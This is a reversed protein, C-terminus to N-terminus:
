SVTYYYWLHNDSGRVYIEDPSLVAPASAITVGGDMTETVRQWSGWGGNDYTLYWLSEDVGRAYVRMHDENQSVVGLGTSIMGGLNQWAGWTSGDESHLWRLTNDPGLRFLDLKNGRAVVAPAPLEPTPGCWADLAPWIGQGDILIWSSWTSGDFSGRYIQNDPGIVFVDFAGAGRAATAPGSLLAPSNTASQNNWTSGDHHWLADDYGRVVLDIQDDSHAVAAPASTARQYGKMESTEIILKRFLPPLGPPQFIYVIIKEAQGDGNIDAATIDYYYDGAMVARESDELFQEDDYKLSQWDLIDSAANHWSLLIQDWNVLSYNGVLPDLGDAVMADVGSLQVEEMVGLENERVVQTRYSGARSPQGPEHHPIPKAPAPYGPMGGSAPEGEGDPGQAQAVPILALAPQVLLAVLIVLIIIRKM